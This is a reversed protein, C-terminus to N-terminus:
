LPLTRVFHRSYHINSLVFLVCVSVYVSVCVRERAGVCMYACVCAEVPRYHSQVRSIAVKTNTEVLLYSASVGFICVCVCVCARVCACVHVCVYVCV